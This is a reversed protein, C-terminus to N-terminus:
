LIVKLHIKDLNLKEDFQQAFFLTQRYRAIEKTNKPLWLPLPLDLRACLLRLAYELQESYSYKSDLVEVGAEDIINDNLYVSLEVKM